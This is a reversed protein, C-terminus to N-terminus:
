ANGLWITKIQLYEDLSAEGLERGYGSQKVGGFPAASDYMAHGNVWIIGAKVQRAFRTVKELDKTWVGAALGYGTANVRPILDEWDDFPTVVLVPGFIEDCMLPHDDSVGTFITPALYYGGEPLDAPTYGGLCLTAGSALGNAIYGQVHRLQESSVLPGVQTYPDFAPGIRIEGARKVVRGLVLDFIPRQIFLRSGAICNQGSHSFMGWVAGEVAPTIDADQFITVASKGGLELSIRKITGASASIIQRGVETSGTFGIKNVDPHAALAAGAPEGYGPVINIVGPPFGAEVVLRGFWLASLPSQEAPKLVVTNGCALAPGLKGSIAELPYNWPVIAGCVGVPERVTYVLRGEMGVPITQGYLKTTWGAYYRFDDIMAPIEGQRTANIPLGVNLSDLQALIDADREILETLRWILRGREAPSMTSWAPSEFAERAAGVASDIDAASGEAVQTVIKGYSPDYVPFSRGTAAPLWEGNLLLRLPQNELYAVVEPLLQSPVM